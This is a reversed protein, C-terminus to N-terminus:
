PTVEELRARMVDRMDQEAAVLGRAFPYRPETGREEIKRRIAWAVHEVAITTADKAHAARVAKRIKSIEHAVPQATANKGTKALAANMEARRAKASAKNIAALEDLYLKKRRVWDCLHRFGEESIAGPGRGLEVIAAYATDNSVRCGDPLVTVRWAARYVGTDVPPRSKGDVKTEQIQELIGRKLVQGSDRLGKIAAVEFKPGLNRFFPALDKMSITVHTTGM